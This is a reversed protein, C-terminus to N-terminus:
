KNSYLNDFADRNNSIFASVSNDETADFSELQDFQAVTMNSAKFGQMGLTETLEIEFIAADTGKVAKVLATNNQTFSVKTIQLM